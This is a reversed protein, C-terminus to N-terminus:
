HGYIRLAVSTLTGTSSNNPSDYYLWDNENTRHIYFRFYGSNTDTIKVTWTGESAEGYFANSLLVTNNFDASESDDQDMVLLSRPPLIMSKTGTPSTLEIALDADRGHTTSIKLQVSEVTLRNSVYIGKSTGTNGEPIPVASTNASSIFDTEVVSPLLSYSHSTAMDVAATADVMGFGYWNHFHYGASNTIWGPEAVFTEAGNIIEVPTFNPDVKKATTALIHRVDRWSLSDNSAMILAAVGSVVPTASSTGNFTSTYNCDTNETTGGNFGDEGYQAYGRACGTLDTTIMAPQADGDEGGPASVWVSAGVSSYSALPDAASANLASIVTQYFSSSEPEVGSIHASLPPTSDDAAYESAVVDINNGLIQMSTGVYGFSNGAAKLMLIGKGSNNASMVSKLHAEAANNWTDFFNQPGTINAGYSQNVIQVDDTQSGGHNNEWEDLLQTELWNFGMLSADPAVGRGGIANFAKAAILGAVSTGHDGGNDAPTPDTDGNVYDYSRGALVNASLDEHNIELGSDVVAVKVGSGTTGNIHLNGINIDHGATGSDDSYANQGTNHLHWQDTLLKDTVTTFSVTTQITSIGDSVNVQITEFGNTTATSQYSFTGDTNLTLSVHDPLTQNEPLSFALEDGDIDTAALTGSLTQNDRTSFSNVQAQPADNVPTVNITLTATTSLEGDSVEVSVSDSGNFDTAPTYTLEGAESLTAEGHQATTSLRYTLDENADDVDSAVINTTMTQDESATLNQATGNNFEPADNVATVSINFDAIVDSKGDSVVVSLADAGHYNSAPTYTILGSSSIVADGNTPMNGLIYTLSDGDADNALVQHQIAIDETATLNASSATPQSNSDGSGSGGCAALVCSLTM